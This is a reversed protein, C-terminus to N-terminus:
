NRVEVQILKTGSVMWDEGLEIPFEALKSGAGSWSAGSGSQTARALSLAVSKPVNGLESAGAQYGPESQWVRVYARRNSRLQNLTEIVQAPTKGSLAGGAYLSRIEQANLTSGDSISFFLAGNEAGAPVRYRLRRQLERGNDTTFAMTIEVEDGPKAERRSPWANDIRVQRKEERPELTLDIGALTAAPIAAELIAALPSAIGLGAGAAANYDSTYINDIKLPALGGEFRVQGRVGITSAGFGRETGDLAAAAAMQLLLPALSRNGVMEVQYPKNPGVGIRVPIMKPRRGLEGSIAASRDATITGLWEKASSIKFSTSVSPLLALVEARAFPMESDGLSLFRHGFAYIRKGDIATVTGEAAVSLDGTMLHVSIMSGPEIPRAPGNSVPTGSTVGQRPELGFKRWQAAFQDLLGQSFGGFSVPTAIEIMQSDGFRAALAPRAPPRSPGTELMEQIPRIGAIPDKSFPFALAVAGILRNNIYVPSGSMGQMVGTHALPGGSLRALIVSQRPGVNDLVGLIEVDFTSTSAGSFVTRGIGKQGARIESLPM